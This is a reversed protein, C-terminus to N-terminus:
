PIPEDKSAKDGERALLELVCRIVQIRSIDYKDVTETLRDWNEISVPRQRKEISDQDHRLLGLEQFAGEIQPLFERIAYALTQRFEIKELDKTPKEDKDLGYAVKARAVGESTLDLRKTVSKKTLKPM